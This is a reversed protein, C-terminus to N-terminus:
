KALTLICQNASLAAMTLTWFNAVSFHQSLVMPFLPAEHGAEEM